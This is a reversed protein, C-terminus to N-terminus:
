DCQRVKSLTWLSSVLGAAIWGYFPLVNGLLVVLALNLLIYGVACM